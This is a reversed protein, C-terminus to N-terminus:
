DLITGDALEFHFGRFHEGDLRANHEFWVPIAFEQSTEGTETNESHIMMPPGCRRMVLQGIREPARGQGSFIVLCAVILAVHTFNFRPRM